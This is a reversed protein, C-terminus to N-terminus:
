PPPALEKLLWARAFAWDRSVTRPAVGLVEAAESETLGGFFLLEVLRGQRADRQTLRELAQDVSIIEDLRDDSIVLM